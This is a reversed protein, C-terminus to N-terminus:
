RAAISAGNKAWWRSPPGAGSSASAVTNSVPALAHRPRGLQGGTPSARVSHNSASPVSAGRAGVALAAASAHVLSGAFGTGYVAATVIPMSGSYM